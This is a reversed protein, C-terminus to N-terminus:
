ERAAPHKRRAEAAQASCFEALPKGNNLIMPSGNQCFIGGGGSYGNNDTSNGSIINNSIAPSAGEPCYIGAGVGSSSSFGYNTRGGTITFGDIRANSAGNVCRHSNTGVGDIMSVHVAIDRTWGAAEFGGWLDVWQKM